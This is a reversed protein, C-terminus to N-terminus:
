KTATASTAIGDVPEPTPPDSLDVYDDIDQSQLTGKPTWERGPVYPSAESGTHRKKQVVMIVIGLVVGLLAAWVNTRLGFFM